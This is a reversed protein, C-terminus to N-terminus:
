HAQHKRAYALKAKEPASLQDQISTYLAILKNFDRSQWAKDAESRVRRLEMDRMYAAAQAGRFIELRRFFMRDGALALRAHVRTNEAMRDLFPGLKTEDAFQFPMNRESVEVNEMALLDRLSFSDRVEGKKPQLGTFVNLEGSRADWEITVFTQASEYQLRAPDSQTLRFGVGELFSFAREAMDSFRMSM